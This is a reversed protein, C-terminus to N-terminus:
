LHYHCNLHCQSSLPSPSTIVQIFAYLVVLPVLTALFVPTGYSIMIIVSVVKLLCFFFAEFQHALATDVVDVDKSFRNLVRGLPTTDFFYMPASLITALMDGHLLAGSRVNGTYLMTSGLLSFAGALLSSESERGHPKLHFRAGVASARSSWGLTVPLLVWCYRSSHRLCCSM